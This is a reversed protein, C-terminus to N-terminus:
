VLETLQQFRPRKRKLRSRVRSHITYLKHGLGGDESFSSSGLCDRLQTIPSHRVPRSPRQSQSFDYSELLCFMQFARYELRQRSGWCYLFNRSTYLLVHLLHTSINLTDAREAPKEVAPTAYLLLGFDYVIIQTSCNVFNM